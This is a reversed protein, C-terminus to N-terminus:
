PGGGAIDVRARNPFGDKYCLPVSRALPFFDATQVRYLSGAPKVVRIFAHYCFPTTRM